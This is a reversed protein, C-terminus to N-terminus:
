HYMIFEAYDEINDIIYNDTMCVFNQPLIIIDKDINDRICSKEFDKDDINNSVLRLLQKHTFDDIIDNVNRM